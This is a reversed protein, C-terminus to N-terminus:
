EIPFNIGRMEEKSNIGKTKYKSGSNYIAYLKIMDAQPDICKAILRFRGDSDADTQEVALVIKTEQINPTIIGDITSAQLKQELLVSKQCEKKLENQLDAIKNKKLEYYSGFIVGFLIIFGAIAGGAKYKENKILASSKLFKFLVIAGTLSLLFIIGVALLDYDMNM